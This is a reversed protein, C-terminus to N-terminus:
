GRELPGFSSAPRECAVDRLRWTRVSALRSLAAQRRWPESPFLDWDAGPDLADACEIGISGGDSRLRARLQSLEEDRDHGELARRYSGPKIM